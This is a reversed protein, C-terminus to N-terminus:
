NETTNDTREPELVSESQEITAEIEEIAESPLLEKAREVDELFRGGVNHKKQIDTARIELLELQRQQLQILLLSQELEKQNAIAQQVIEIGQTSIKINSARGIMIGFGCSLVFCCLILGNQQEKTAHQWFEFPNM